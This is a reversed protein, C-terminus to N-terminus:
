GPRRFSLASSGSVRTHPVKQGAKKFKLIKQKDGGAYIPRAGHRVEADLGLTRAGRPHGVRQAVRTLHGAVGEAESSVRRHAKPGTMVGSSGAMRRYVLVSVKRPRRGCGPAACDSLVSNSVTSSVPAASGGVVSGSYVSVSGSVSASSGDGGREGTRLLTSNAVRAQRHAASWDAGVWTGRRSARACGSGGTSAPPRRLRRSSPGNLGCCAAAATAAAAAAAADSTAWPQDMSAPEAFTRAVESSMGGFPGDGGHPEAVPAESPSM